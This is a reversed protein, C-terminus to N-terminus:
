RRQRMSGRAAATARWVGTTSLHGVWRLMPAADLDAGFRSLVPDDDEGPPVSSLVHTAQALAARTSAADTQRTIGAVDLGDGDGRGGGGRWWYGLGFVVLRAQM